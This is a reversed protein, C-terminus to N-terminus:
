RRGHKGGMVGGGGWGSTDLRTSVWGRGEEVTGAPVVSVGGTPVTVVGGAGVVVTTGGAVGVVM